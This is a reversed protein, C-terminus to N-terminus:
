EDPVDRYSDIDSAREIGSGRLILVEPDLQMDPAPAEPEPRPPPLPRAPRVLRITGDSPLAVLIGRTDLLVAGSRLGSLLPTGTPAVGMLSADHLRVGQAGSLVVQGAAGDAWAAVAEGEIESVTDPAMGLGTDGAQALVILLPTGPPGKSLASLPAPASFLREAEGTRADIRLLQSTGDPHSLGLRLSGDPMVAIPHPRDTAGARALPALLEPTGAGRMRWVGNRDAVFLTDNGVALGSPLDFRQPLAQVSDARGDLGRDRITWIRGSRADAAFVTGDSGLALDSIDGLGRAFVPAELGDVASGPRPASRVDQALAPIPGLLALSILLTRIM